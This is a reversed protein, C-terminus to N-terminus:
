QETTTPEASGISPGNIVALEHHHMKRAAARRAYLSVCVRARVRVREVRVKCANNRTASIQWAGM